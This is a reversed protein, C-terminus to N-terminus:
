FFHDTRQALNPHLLESVKQFEEPNGASFIVSGLEEMVSRGIEAWIVNAMIEFGNPDVGGGNEEEAMHHHNPHKLGGAKKGSSRSKASIRSSM